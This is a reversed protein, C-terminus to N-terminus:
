YLPVQQVSFKMNEFLSIEIEIDVEINDDLDPKNDKVCEKFPVLKGFKDFSYKGPDINHKSKPTMSITKGDQNKHIKWGEQDVIVYSCEPYVGDQLYQSFLMSSILTIITIISRM